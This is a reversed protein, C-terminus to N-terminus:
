PACAQQTYIFIKQPFYLLAEETSNTLTLQLILNHGHLESMFDNHNFHEMNRSKKHKRTNRLPASEIIGFNPLNDHFKNLFTTVLYM